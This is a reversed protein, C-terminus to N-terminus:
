NEFPQLDGAHEDCLTKVWDRKRQVGPKGCEECTRLSLEEAAVIRQDFECLLWNHLENSGAGCSIASHTTYYRLGGFKEKVQQVEYNPDIAALDRDLDLVLQHWGEGVDAWKGWESPIRDIIPQLPNM